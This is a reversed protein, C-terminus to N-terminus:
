FANNLFSLAFRTLGLHSCLLFKQRNLTAEHEPVIEYHALLSEVDQLTMASIHEEIRPYVVGVPLPNGNITPVPTITGSGLMSRNANQAGQISLEILHIDIEDLRESNEILRGNMRRLTVANDNWRETNREDMRNVRENLQRLTTANQRLITTNQRIGRLIEQVLDRGVPLPLVSDM